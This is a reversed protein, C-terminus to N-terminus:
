PEPEPRGHGAQGQRQDLFSGVLRLHFHGEHRRRHRRWLEEQAAPSQGRAIYPLVYGEPRLRIAEDLDPLARDPDNM